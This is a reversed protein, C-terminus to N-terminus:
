KVINKAQIYDVARTSPNIGILGPTPSTKIFVPYDDNNYKLENYTYESWKGDSFLLESTKNEILYGYFGAETILFWDPTNVQKYIGNKGDFSYRNQIKYDSSYSYEIVSGNNALIYNITTKAEGEILDTVIIKNELVEIVAINEGNRSKIIKNGEYAYREETVVGIAENQSTTIDTGSIRGEADYSMITNTIAKSEPNTASYVKSINTLRNNEDYIYSEVIEVDVFPSSSTLIFNQTVKSPLLQKNSIKDNDNDSCSSLVGIFVLLSLFYNSRKM